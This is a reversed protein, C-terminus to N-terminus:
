LRTKCIMGKLYPEKFVLNYNALALLLALLTGIIWRADKLTM